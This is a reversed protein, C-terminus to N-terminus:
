NASKLDNRLVPQGAKLVPILVSSIGKWENAEMQELQKQPLGLVESWRHGGGFMDFKRGHFKGRIDLNHDMNVVAPAVLDGVFVLAGHNYYGLVMDSIWSRGQFHMEAGGAVIAHARTEGLVLLFPGGDMNDNLISGSVSLNGTVILGNIDSQEWDMVLNGDIQLDGEVLRFQANRRIHYDHDYTVLRRSLAYRQNAESPSIRTGSVSWNALTDAEPESASSMALLMADGITGSRPAPGARHAGYALSEPNSRIDVAGTDLHDVLVVAQDGVDKSATAAFVVSVFGALMAFLFCRMWPIFM